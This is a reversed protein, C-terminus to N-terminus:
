GNGLKETIADPGRLRTGITKGEEWRGGRKWGGLYGLLRGPAGDLIGVFRRSM